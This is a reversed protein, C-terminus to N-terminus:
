NLFMANFSKMYVDQM